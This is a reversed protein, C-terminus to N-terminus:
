SRSYRQRLMLITIFILLVAIVLLLAVLAKTWSLAAIRCYKSRQNARLSVDDSGFVYKSMSRERVIRDGSSAKGFVRYRFAYSGAQATNIFKAAYHGDRKSGDDHMGDDFLRLEQQERAPNVVTVIVEADAVPVGRELLDARLVIPEGIVLRKPSIQPQLRLNSGAGVAFSYGALQPKEASSIIGTDTKPYTRTNSQTGTVVLRWIGCYLQPANTAFRLRLIASQDREILRQQFGTPPISAPFREGTPSELVWALPHDKYLLVLTLSFDAEVIYINHVNQTGPLVTYLPDVLMESSSLLMAAQIYFKELAFYDLGDLDGTADYTGGSETAVQSLIGKDINDERGLGVAYVAVDAPVSVEEVWIEDGGVLAPENEKGDTLVIVAKKEATSAILQNLGELLGAAISTRGSPALNTTNIKQEISEQNTSEVRIITQFSSSETNFRVLAVRDQNDPRLLRVFLRGARREAESKKREGALESMSGSRDMVLAVDLSKAAVIEGLLTISEDSSISIDNIDSITLTGTYSDLPETARFTIAIQVAEGPAVAFDTESLIFPAASDLSATFTLEAEGTNRVQVAKTFDFGQEVQGYFLVTVPPDILFGPKPACSTDCPPLPNNTDNLEPPADECFRNLRSNAASRLWNKIENIRTSSLCTFGTHLTGDIWSKELWYQIGYPSLNTTDYRQDCAESGLPCCSVHPFGDIHRAEHMILGINGAIGLWTRDHERNFDDSTTLTIYTKGDPWVGCCGNFIATSSINFGGVKSKLWDYLSLSTWPLHGTRGKDMYYITRLCQLLILEDTYQAIPLSSIPEACPFDTIEVGDKKITFDSLIQSIAPDLTPCQELFTDINTIYCTDNGLVDSSCALTFFISLICSVVLRLFRSQVIRM